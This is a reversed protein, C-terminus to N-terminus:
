AYNIPKWFWFFNGMIAAGHLSPPAHPQGWFVVVHSAWFLGAYGVIVRYASDCHDNLM